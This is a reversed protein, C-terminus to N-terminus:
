KDLLKPIYRKLLEALEAYEPSGKRWSLGRLSKLASTWLGDNIRRKTAECSSAASTLRKRLGEPLTKFTAYALQRRRELEEPSEIEEMSRAMLSTM